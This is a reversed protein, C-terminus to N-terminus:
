EYRLCAVPRTRAAKLAHHLVTFLAVLLAIVAAYIFISFHIGCRFAFQQLWRSVLSYGVPWAIVAAVGVWILFQKLLMMLIKLFGAGMAKRIGIEKIRREVMYTSLGFLGLNAIFIALVALGLFVHATQTESQYVDAYHDDFFRYQLPQGMAYKRWVRHIEKLTQPIHTTSVRLSLYRGKGGPYFPKIILPRIDQHMSEFHFNHVVGQIQFQSQESISNIFLRGVPAEYELVKVAAENLLVSNEMGVMNESLARGEKMKIQYTELFDEDVNLYWFMHSEHDESPLARVAFAEFIEGMVMDSNSANLIEPDQLLEHKFASLNVGLDNAKDIIIIQDKVFGLNKSQVFALQQYVALVGIILIISMTFQFIVLVRRFAMGQSSSGRMSRAPHFASLVLAPYLGALGGMLLTFGVLILPWFGSCLASLSLHRHIVQSFVPLMLHALVLALVMGVASLIVSEALFQMILMQRSSGLTKRISVEKARNVARATSLNIFNITSILLITIAVAIFLMVYTMNGNHEIEFELNSHLHIDRLPQFVYGFKGGSEIFEGYSIGFWARLQPDLHLGVVESLERELANVDAGEKLLVYTYFDNLFWVPAAADRQSHLACLFDFHFHTTLPPNEVVGSVVYSNGKDSLITQGMPDSQGFYKQAMAQTLIINNPNKLATKPDGNLFPVTLVNFITSDAWFVREESYVKEGVTFVPSYYNRVKALAEVEMFGDLLVQGLAPCSRATHQGNGNLVGEFNIRYIRDAHAHHRDYRTEHLVFLLILLVSAMGLTLGVLNLISIGKDKQLKRLALKLNNMYMSIRWQLTACLFGPISKIIELWFWHLAKMKGHHFAMEHYADTLQIAIQESDEDPIGHILIYLFVKNFRGM